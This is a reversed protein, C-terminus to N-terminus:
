IYSKRDDIVFFEASPVQFSISLFIYKAPASQVLLSATKSSLDLVKNGGTLSLQLPIYSHETRDTRGDTRGDTQEDTGEM